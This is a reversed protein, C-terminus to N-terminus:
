AIEWYFDTLLREMTSPLRGDNRQQELWLFVERPSHTESFARFEEGVSANFADLERQFESYYYPM